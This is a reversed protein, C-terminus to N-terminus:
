ARRRPRSPRRRRATCVGRTPRRTRAPRCWRGAARAGSWGSWAPAATRGARASRLRVHSVRQGCRVAHVHERRMRPQLGQAAGPAASVRIQAVLDTGVPAHGNRQQARRGRHVRQRGAVPRREVVHQPAAVQRAVAPAGGALEDLVHVRMHREQRRRVRGVAGPTAPLVRAFAAGSPVGDFQLVLDLLSLDHGVSPVLTRVAAEHGRRAGAVHLPVVLPAVLVTQLARGREAHLDVVPRDHGRRAREVRVRLVQRARLPPGALAPREVQGGRHPHGHRPPAGVARLERAELRGAADDVPPPELRSDPAPLGDQATRGWARGLRGARQLAPEAPLRLRLPEVRAPEPVVRGAGVPREVEVLRFAVAHHGAPPGGGVPEVQEGPEPPGDPRGVRVRAHRRREQRGFAHGVVPVVHAM